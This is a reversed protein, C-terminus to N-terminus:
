RAIQKAKEVTLANQVSEMGSNESQIELDRVGDLRQLNEFGRKQLRALTSDEKYSIGLIRSDKTIGPLRAIRDVVDDLHREPENYKIWDYKPIIDSYPPPSVLQVVSCSSCQGMKLHHTEEKENIERLFRNCFPQNGLDLLTSVAGEGCWTCEGSKDQM